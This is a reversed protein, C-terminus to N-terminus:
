EKAPSRNRNKGTKFPVTEETCEHSYDFAPKMQDQVQQLRGEYWECNYILYKSNWLQVGNRNKGTKFPVPRKLVSTATDFAPKLQDQVQQLRGEYM